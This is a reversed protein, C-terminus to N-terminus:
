GRGAYLGGGGHGGEELFGDGDGDAGVATGFIGGALGVDEVGHADEEGEGLGVIGVLVLVEAADGDEV